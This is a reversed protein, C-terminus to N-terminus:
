ELTNKRADYTFYVDEMDYISGDGLLAGCMELYHEPHRIKSDENAHILMQLIEKDEEVSCGSMTHLTAHGDMHIIKLLLDVAEEEYEPNQVPEQNNPTMEQGDHHSDWEMDPLAHPFNNQQRVTIPVNIHLGEVLSLILETKGHIGMYELLMHFWEANTMHELLEDGSGDAGDYHMANRLHALMTGSVAIGNASIIEAKGKAPAPIEHMPQDIESAIPPNKRKKEFIKM